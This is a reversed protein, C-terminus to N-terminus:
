PHVIFQKKKVKTIRLLSAFYADEAEDLQVHRKVYNVESLFDEM